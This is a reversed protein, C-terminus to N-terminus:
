KKSDKMKLLDKSAEFALITIQSGQKLEVTNTNIKIIKKGDIMEGVGYWKGSIFAKQNMISVLKMEKKTESNGTNSNGDHMLTKMTNENIFPNYDILVDKNSNKYVILENLKSDIDQAFLSVSILLLVIFQKM